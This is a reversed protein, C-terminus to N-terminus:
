GYYQISHVQDAYQPTTPAFYGDEQEKFGDHSWYSYDFTFKKKGDADGARKEPDIIYTTSGVMEIVLNSKRNM